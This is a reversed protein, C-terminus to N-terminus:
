MLCISCNLIISEIILERISVVRNENLPVRFHRYFFFLSVNISCMFSYFFFSFFSSAHVFDSDIPPRNMAFQGRARNLVKSLDLM